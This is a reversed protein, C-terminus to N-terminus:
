KEWKEISVKLSCGDLGVLCEGSLYLDHISMECSPCAIVGYKFLQLPKYFDKQFSFVKEWHFADESVLVSSAQSLIAPGREVTTFAM